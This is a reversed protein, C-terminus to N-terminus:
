FLINSFYLEACREESDDIFVDIKKNRFHSLVLGIIRKRTSSNPFNYIHWRSGFISDFHEVPFSQKCSQEGCYNVYFYNKFLIPSLPLDLSINRINIYKGRNGSSLSAMSRVIAFKVAQLQNLDTSNPSAITEQFLM